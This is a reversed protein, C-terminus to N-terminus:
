ASKEKREQPHAAKWADLKARGEPTSTLRRYMECLSRGLAKNYEEPIDAPSPPRNIIVTEM